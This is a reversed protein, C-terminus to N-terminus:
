IEAATAVDPSYQHELARVVVYANAGAAAFDQNGAANRVPYKHWTDLVDVIRFGGETSGTVIAQGSQGTSTSGAQATDMDAFQGIDATAVTGTAQVLFLTDYADYVIANATTGSKITTDAPWYRSFKQEGQPTVYEVGGFVGVFVGGEAALEISGDAIKTVLDGSFINTDYGSAIFHREARVPTGGNVHRYPRFGFPADPNAM